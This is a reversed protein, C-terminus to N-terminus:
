GFTGSAGHGGGRRALPPPTSALRDAVAGTAFAYVAKHLNDIAALKPPWAWPPKGVGTVNEMTEDTTLRTVFFMGSALPGRMGGEAMIGRLAAPLVGLGWHAVWALVRRDKDPKTPLGLVREMAHAPIFSNPRGTLAQEIKESLTMAVTGALGAIMGTRVGRGIVTWTDNSM